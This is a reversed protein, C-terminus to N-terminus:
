KQHPPPLLRGMDEWSKELSRFLHYAATQRVARTEWARFPYAAELKERLSSLFSRSVGCIKGKYKVSMRMFLLIRRAHTVSRAIAHLRYVDQVM